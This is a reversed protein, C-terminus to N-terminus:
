KRGAYVIRLGQLALLLWGTVFALGGPLVMWTVSALGVFGLLYLGGCFLLSGVGFAVGAGVLLDAPRWSFIAATALLVLAHWIQYRVDTQIRALNDDSLYEPPEHATAAAILVAVAGSLSAFCIMWGSVREM